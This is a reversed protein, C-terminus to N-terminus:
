KCRKSTKGKSTKVKKTKGKSTKVKKTKGGKKFFNFMNRPKSESEPKINKTKRKSKKNNKGGSMSGMRLQGLNSHTGTPMETPLIKDDEFTHYPTLNM